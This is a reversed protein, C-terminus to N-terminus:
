VPLRRGHPRLAKWYLAEDLGTRTFGPLDGVHRYGHREYLRRAGSNDATVLLILHNTVRRAAAEAAALLAAGTGTRQRDEAVLLLRLYTAGTLIRSPLIWALGAVPGDPEVAVILRDGSRHGRTLA